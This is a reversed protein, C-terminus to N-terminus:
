SLLVSMIEVILVAAAAPKSVACVTPLADEANPTRRLASAYFRLWLDGGIGASRWRNRLGTCGDTEEVTQM